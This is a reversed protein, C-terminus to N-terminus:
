VTDEDAVTVLDIDLLMVPVNDSVAVIVPVCDIVPVAVMDIDLLQLPVADIVDLWDLVMEVDMVM